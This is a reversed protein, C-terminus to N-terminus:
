WRRSSGDIRANRVSTRFTELTSREGEEGAMHPDICHIRRQAGCDLLARGMAVATRGKWSGIEAIDGPLELDSVTRYLLAIEDRWTLGPVSRALVVAAEEHRGLLTLWRTRM